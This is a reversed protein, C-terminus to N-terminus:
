QTKGKPNMQHQMAEYLIKTHYGMNALREAEFRVSKDNADIFTEGMKTRNLFKVIKVRGTLNEGFTLNKEDIWETKM